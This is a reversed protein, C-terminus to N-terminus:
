STQGVRDVITVKLVATSELVQGAKLGDENRVQVLREGLFAHTGRDFILEQRQGQVETLAVAVGGRGAEDTVNGVVTVGPIKAVANFVAALSAPSLYAERILDGAATFAEQDRPNKTGGANRYLLARMGDADTPLDGRYNPIPKCPQSVTQEGKTQKEVGGRCGPLPIEQWGGADSRPHQRILGDGTGDVSLWARRENSTTVQSSDGGQGQSLQTATAISDAYVFQDGRVTLMPGHQALSAADHLIDAASARSAPAHGGFPVVQTVLVGATVVAALGGAVGLRWGMSPLAFRPRRYGGRGAVTAETLVRQRLRAPPNAGAPDLESGLM